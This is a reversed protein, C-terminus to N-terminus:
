TRPGRAPGARRAMAGRTLTSRRPWTSPLRIAPLELPEIGAFSLFDSTRVRDPELTASKTFGIDVVFQEFVREALEARVRFRIAQFEDVEDFADTRSAMFTFFDDLRLRQV